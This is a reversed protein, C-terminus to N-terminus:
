DMFGAPCLGSRLWHALGSGQGEQRRWDGKRKGKRIGKKRKM